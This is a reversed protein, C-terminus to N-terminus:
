VLPFAVYEELDRTATDSFPEAKAMMKLEAETLGAAVQVQRFRFGEQKLLGVVVKLDEHGVWLVVRAGCDCREQCASFGLVNIVGHTGRAM